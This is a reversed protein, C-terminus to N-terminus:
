RTSGEVLRRLKWTRAEAADPAPNDSASFSFRCAACDFFFLMM